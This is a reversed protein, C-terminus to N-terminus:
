RRKKFFDQLLATCSEALVGGLVEPRHNHAAVSFIDYAGGLAGTKPDQAGFVIREVRAHILALACMGCPELTVYLTTNILRYNHKREGAARLVLIEAHATPDHSAIPCNWAEALIEEGEVLVAGVPVEGLEEARRALELARQMYHRDLPNM